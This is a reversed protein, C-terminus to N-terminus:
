RSALTPPHPHDLPGSRGWPWRRSVSGLVASALPGHGRSGVVILDADITDAYAVLEDVTDGRLMQTEADIGREAALTRAEELPGRDYDTLEHPQSAAMGFGGTALVDVAPAVHAFVPRAHQEAALELGFEVAKRAADSGDTAILITNM